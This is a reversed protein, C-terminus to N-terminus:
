HEDQLSVSFLKPIALLPARSHVARSPVSTAFPKSTTGSFLPMDVAILPASQIHSVPKDFLVYM